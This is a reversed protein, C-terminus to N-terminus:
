NNTQNYFFFQAFKWLGETRIQTLICFVISFYASKKKKEKFFM